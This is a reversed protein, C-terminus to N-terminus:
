RSWSLVSPYAFSENAGGGKMRSRSRWVIYAFHSDESFSMRLASSLRSDIMGNVAQAVHQAQRWFLIRKSWKDNKIAAKCTAATGDDSGSLRVQRAAAQLNLMYYTASSLRPLQSHSWPSKPGSAPWRWVYRWYRWSCALSGENRM